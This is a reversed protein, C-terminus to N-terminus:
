QFELAAQVVSADLLTFTRVTETLGERTRSARGLLLVPAIDWLAREVAPEFVSGGGHAAEVADCVEFLDVEAGSAQLAALVKRHLPSAAREALFDGVARFDTADAWGLCVRADWPLPRLSWQRVVGAVALFPGGALARWVDQVSPEGVRAPSDGRHLGEIAVRLVTGGARLRVAADQLATRWAEPEKCSITGDALGLASETARLLSKVLVLGSGMLDHSAVRWQLTAGGAWAALVGARPAGPATELLVLGERRTGIAHQLEGLAKPWAAPPGLCIASSEVHGDLERQFRTFWAVFREHKVIDKPGPDKKGPWALGLAGKEDRGVALPWLDVVRGDEGLLCPHLAPLVAAAQPGHLVVRETEGRLAVTGDGTAMVFPQEELFPLRAIVSSLLGRHARIDGVVSQFSGHAFSNRYASLRAVPNSEDGPGGFDLELLGKAVPRLGRRLFVARLTRGIGIWTGGLVRGGSTVVRDYLMRNASADPAGAALYEAVWLRGVLSFLAEIAGVVEDATTHEGCRLTERELVRAAHALPTPLRATRASELLLEVTM